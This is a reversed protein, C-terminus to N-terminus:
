FRVNPDKFTGFVEKLTAVIEGLTAYAKVAEVFHPILNEQGEAARKITDLAARVQEASRERRVERLRLRQRETVAPDHQHFAIEPEKTDPAAYKNAGVLVIKGSQMKEMQAYLQEDLQRRMYGTEICHVTGGHATIDDLYRLSEREIYDTLHEVYYSGGLPDITRAIDTEEQLIQLGRLGLLASEENPIAYAEDYGAVFTAQAGGLVAGLIGYAARTLNNFPEIAQFYRGGTAGTVRFRLSDKGRAHYHERMLRAWLRRAARFKAAEAFIEPGCALFFSLRPAFDDISLGRELAGEVYTLADAFTYGVEQPITAGASRFYVGQVNTPYFRPMHRCCYEIMDTILRLSPRPPFIWTGRCVYVTLIDNTFAGMISDPAIGKQEGVALYMALIIAAPGATNFFIPLMPLGDTLVEFDRLSDIAIGTRGVEDEAFPDDSDYGMHTPLDFALNFVMQGRELLLKWRQNTDEATGFGAYQNLRWPAKRYMGGYVGRTFPFEGPFGLRELYEAPEANSPTYLPQHEYGMSDILPPLESIRQERQWRQKEAEIDSM